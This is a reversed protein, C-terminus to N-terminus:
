PCFGELCGNEWIGEKVIGDAYTFTGQGHYKDDRWEGVYKDGAHKGQNGLNGVTLTGQGHKKDDKWEGVYKDGDSWTLTGFCNSWSSKEWTSPCPPLDGGTLGSSSVLNSRPTTCGASFLLVAFTLCLIATLNRM